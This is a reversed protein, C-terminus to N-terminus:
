LTRSRQCVATFFIVLYKYNLFVLFFVFFIGFGYFSLLLLFFEEFHFLDKLSEGFSPSLYCTLYSKWTEDYSLSELHLCFKARLCLGDVLFIFFFGTKIGLLTACLSTM